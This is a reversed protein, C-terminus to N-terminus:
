SIRAEFVAISHYFLRVVGHHRIRDQEDCYTYRTSVEHENYGLYNLVQEKDRLPVFRRHYYLNTLFMICGYQVTSAVPVTFM